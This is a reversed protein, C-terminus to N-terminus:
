VDKGCKPCFEFDKELRAGCYPCFDGEIHRQAGPTRAKGAARDHGLMTAIPDSEEQGTTVDLTSMRNRNRFNVFNYVAGVAAMAFIVFTGLTWVIRFAAVAGGADRSMVANGVVLMGLAVVAVGASGFAGLLSPGRGPKVSYM